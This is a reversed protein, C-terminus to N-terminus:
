TPLIFIEECNEQSKMLKLDGEGLEGGEMRNWIIGGGKFNKNSM